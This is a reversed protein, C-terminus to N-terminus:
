DEYEYDPDPEKFKVFRGNGEGEMARKYVRCFSTLRVKRMEKPGPDFYKIFGFCYLNVEGTMIREIRNAEFPAASRLDNIRRIQGLGCEPGEIDTRAQANLDGPLQGEPQIVNFDIGFSDVIAKAGGVNVYLLDISVPNGPVLAGRLWIHKIRIKPRYTANFEDRALALADRTLRAQRNTVCVLAITFAAIAVTAFATWDDPRLNGFWQVAAVL